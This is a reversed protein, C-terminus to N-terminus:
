AIVIANLPPSAEESSGNKSLALSWLDLTGTKGNERKTM